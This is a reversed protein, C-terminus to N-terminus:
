EEEDKRTETKLRAKEDIVLWKQGDDILIRDIGAERMAEILQEGKAKEDASWDNKNRKAEMYEDRLKAVAKPPEAPETGPIFSQKDQPEQSRPSRKPKASRKAM